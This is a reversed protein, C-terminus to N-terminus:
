QHEPNLCVLWSTRGVVPQGSGTGGLRQRLHLQGCKHREGSSESGPATVFARGFLKETFAPSSLHTVSGMVMAVLFLVGVWNDSPLFQARGYELQLGTALCKVVRLGDNAADPSSFPGKM